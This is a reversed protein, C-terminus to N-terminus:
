IRQAMSQIQRFYKHSKGLLVSANNVLNNTKESMKKDVVAVFGEWEARM